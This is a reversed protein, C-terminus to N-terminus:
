ALDTIDNSIDSDTGKISLNINNTLKTKKLKIEKSIKHKSKKRNKYNNKSKNNFPNENYFNENIHTNSINIINTNWNKEIFRELRIRGNSKFMPIGTNIISFFENEENNNNSFNKFNSADWSQRRKKNISNFEYFKRM